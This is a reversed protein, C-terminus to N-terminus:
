PPDLVLARGVATASRQKAPASITRTRSTKPKAPAIQRQSNIGLDVPQRLGLSLGNLRPAHGTRRLVEMIRSETGWDSWLVNQVPIALLGPPHAEVYPELLEKSFNVPELQQYVERVVADELPTGLAEHIRGFMAHLGPAVERVLSLLTDTKFVMIMTNWLAGKLILDPVKKYDPKEIFCSVELAGTAANLRKQPLIYGYEAEAQDPEIGLLVLRSPDKKVFLSALRVYSMLREEELVFQDSPFIAVTSNPYRKALHMLPLLLGPATEKNEPQVVVTERPRKSIQQKVESFALHAENIVTFVRECPILKEARDLTHELMSRTGIFNVYQKPLLDKRLLHIFPRLRKGEGGALVIGCLPGSADGGIMANRATEDSIMSRQQKM